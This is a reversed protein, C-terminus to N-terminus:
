RRSHSIRTSTDVVAFHHGWQLVAQQALVRLLSSQYGGSCLPPGMSALHKSLPPVSATFTDVVAFHHGWQLWGCLTRILTLSISTDVVAFHHGWQLPMLAPLDHRPGVRIWWQLTTAGNFGRDPSGSM